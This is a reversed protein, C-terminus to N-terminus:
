LWAAMENSNILNERVKALIYKMSHTILFIPIRFHLNLFDLIAAAAM